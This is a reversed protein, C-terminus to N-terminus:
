DNNCSKLNLDERLKEGSQWALESTFSPSPGMSAFSHFKTHAPIPTLLPITNPINRPSYSYNAINRITKMLIQVSVHNQLDSKLVLEV